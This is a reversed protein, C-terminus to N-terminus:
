ASVTVPTLKNVLKALRSVRRSATEKKFFGKSVYSHFSNNAVKLKEIALEKNGTEVAERLEKSINKVRTRYYRNRETKKLTQRARKEASKHNAM